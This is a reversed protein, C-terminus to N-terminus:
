GDNKELIWLLAARMFTFQVSAGSARGSYTHDQVVVHYTGWESDISWRCGHRQLVGDVQFLIMNGAAYSPRWDLDWAQRKMKGFCDLDHPDVWCGIGGSRGRQWGMIYTAILADAEPGPRLSDIIEKTLPLM